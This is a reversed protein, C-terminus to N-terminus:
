ASPAAAAHLLAGMSASVQDADLPVGLPLTARVGVPIAQFGWALVEPSVDGRLVGGQAFARARDVRAEHAVRIRDAVQARLSPDNRAAIGVQLLVRQAATDRATEIMRQAVVTAADTFPEASALARVLDWTWTYRDPQLQTLLVDAMLGSKGEYRRYLAGTTVGAGAAIDRTSTAAAGREALLLQAAEILSRAVDDSRQPSPVSPVEIADIASAGGLVRPGPGASECADVFWRVRGIAPRPGAVGIAGLLGGGVAYTAVYWAMSAPLSEELGGHLSHWVDLAVPKLAASTHGALLVEGALLITEQGAGLAWDIADAPSAAAGLAEVIDPGIRERAIDSLLSDRDPWRNYVTGVSYFARKAVSEMAFDACGVALLEELAADRIRSTTEDPDRGGPGM